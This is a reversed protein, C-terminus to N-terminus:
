NEISVLKTNPEVTSIDYIFDKIVSHKGYGYIWWVGNKPISNCFTTERNIGNPYKYGCSGFVIKGKPYKQLIMLCNKSCKRPEFIYMSVLKKFLDTDRKTNLRAENGKYMMEIAIKQTTEPAPKYYRYAGCIIFKEGDECDYWWIDDDVIKGDVEIWYHGDICYSM